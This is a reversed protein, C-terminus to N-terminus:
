TLTMPNYVPSPSIVRVTDKEEREDRGTLIWGGGGAGNGLGGGGGEKENCIM